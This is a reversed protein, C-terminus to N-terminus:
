LYMEGVLVSTRNGVNMQYLNLGQRKYVDLHIATKSTKSVQANESVVKTLVIGSTQSASSSISGVM